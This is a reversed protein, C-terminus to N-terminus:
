RRPHDRLSDVHAVGDTIDDRHAWMGAFELGRISRPKAEERKLVFVEVVTGEEINLEALPKFVGNEYKAPITMSKLSLELVAFGGHFIYLLTGSGKARWLM